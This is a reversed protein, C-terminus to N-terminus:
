LGILRATEDDVDVAGRVESALEERAAVVADRHRKHAREQEDRYAFLDAELIRRDRGVRHFPIRGNEVLKVVFPRSVGLLEAAETTSLDAGVDLTKVARGHALLDVIEVLYAAVPGPLEDLSREGTPFGHLQERADPELVGPDFSRVHTPRMAFRRETQLTLGLRQLRLM